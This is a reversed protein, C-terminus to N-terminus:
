FLTLQAGEPLGDLAGAQRLADIVTRSVRARVRLDEVSTFEAEDRAAAIAWAAQGGVGQLAVLPPLLAGDVIQFRSPHSRHIDVPLFRVGRTLAEQVVELITEMDKEKATAENGKATIEARAARIAALGKQVLLADFDESKVTFHAAYFAERHYLKYYAIRVEMTVYAVAHAKPFMYSIKKCSEIYWDPVKHSRMLEEDEAKLGKGKRVQEMIKFAKLPEVGWRILNLMIDDRCGIAEQLTVRGSRILDQANNTWVNTGHSFGSIRVLDAFTKPRTEELMQRVFPTNFEPIGLTGVTTGIEEPKVGLAECSSFLSIVKPDGLPVTRPDIGTLEYLLRLLTPDDHGLIDVKVLRESISHYDFHTTVTESERDNAPHQVPTFQHVDLDKPVIMLGGPHQGTTRKVGAVGRTLRNVEARRLRLGKEDAWAKVLGFATKDALTSITGARFVHGKGFLEETYQHVVPQYEGSFNLDIDPVKEGHFGMFVEFPIDFGQRSLEEQCRPCQRPPLDVGAGASGDTVFESYHCHRCLYHPPLPNVETIGCMTAVLSSGVSGRSGVLYGDALSKQVLKRAIWYLSAFGNGIIAKLERQLRQEVIEPLPDGYLEKARQWTAAEIEGPAEPIEPAYLRDPVPMIPEVWSAVLQPNRVVVEQAAEEGLYSFEQLMEDTTRFYLPTSREVDAYGKAALIIDRFIEDEPHLFHVDGTAVVPKDLEQGLRYITRNLELLEEESAVKGERLMFANNSRPQIELYDYFSAIERLRDAPLRNLVAQFLEGSECASGIILHERRAALEARPIRPFRYFYQLHSLSVLEYLAYLGQQNRALIIIHYRRANEDATEVLYGEIGYLVKVGYKKGADYAAPFSQVVGHDTIAVAPHGWAAVQRVVEAVDSTADMASMKTHLHLEVRKAGEPASDQRGGGQLPRRLIDSAELVLEGLFRDIVAQGRVVVWDGESLTEALADLKSDAKSKGANSGGNGSAGKRNGYYTEVLKVTISDTRDSIDFQLIRTGQRTVRLESRIVEGAVCITEETPVVDRLAIPSGQFARGYLVEDGGAKGASGASAGQDGGAGGTRPLAENGGPGQTRLSLLLSMYTEDDLHDSSPSAVSPGSDVCNGERSTEGNAADDVSGGAMTTGADAATEADTQTAVGAIVELAALGELRHCAVEKWGALYPSIESLATEPAEGCAVRLVGRYPDVALEKVPLSAVTAPLDILELRELLESLSRVNPRIIVWTGTPNGESQNPDSRM